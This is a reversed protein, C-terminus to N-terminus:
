NNNKNNDEMVEKFKRKNYLLHNLLLALFVILGSVYGASKFLAGPRNGYDGPPLYEENKWSNKYFPNKCGFELVEPKFDKLMIRSGEINGQSNGPCHFYDLDYNNNHVIFFLFVFVLIIAANFIYRDIKYTGLFNYRDKQSFRQKFFDKVKQVQEETIEDDKITSPKTALQRVGHHYSTKERFEELEKDTMDKLEKM